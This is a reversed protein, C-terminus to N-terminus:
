GKVLWGVLMTLGTHVMNALSFCLFPIVTEISVLDRLSCHIRLNFNVVM